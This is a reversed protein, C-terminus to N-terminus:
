GGALRELRDRYAAWWAADGQTLVVSPGAGDIEVHIGDVTLQDM